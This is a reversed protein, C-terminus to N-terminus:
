RVVRGHSNKCGKPPSQGLMAAADALLKEADTATWRIVRGGPPRQEATPITMGTKQVPSAERSIKLHSSISPDRSKSRNTQSRRKPKAKKPPTPSARVPRRFNVPPREIEQFGHAKWLVPGAGLVRAFTRNSCRRADGCSARCASGPLTQWVAACLGRSARSAAIGSAAHPLGRRPSNPRGGSWGLRGIPHLVFFNPSEPLGADPRPESNISSPSAPKGPKNSTPAKSSAACALSTKAV